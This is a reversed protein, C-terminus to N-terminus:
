SRGGHGPRDDRAVRRAAREANGDRRAEKGDARETGMGRAAHPRKRGLREDIRVVALLAKLQQAGAERRGFYCLAEDCGVLAALLALKVDDVGRAADALVGAPVADVPAASDRSFPERDGAVHEGILLHKQL